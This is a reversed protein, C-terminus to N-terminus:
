RNRSTGIKQSRESKASPQQRVSRQCYENDSDYSHEEQLILGEVSCLVDVLAKAEELTHGAAVLTAVQLNDMTLPTVPDQAVAAKFDALSDELSTHITGAGRVAYTKMGELPVKLAPPLTSGRCRLPELSPPSTLRSCHIFAEECGERNLPRPPAQSPKTHSFAQLSLTSFTAGTASLMLVTSASASTTANPTPPTRIPLHVPTKPSGVHAHM